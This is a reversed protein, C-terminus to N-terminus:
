ERSLPFGPKIGGFYFNFDLFIKLWFLRLKRLIIRLDHGAGCLLANIKDGTTGQLYNRGLLGDSKMHGIVPEIASRRKMDKRLAYTKLDRKNRTVHIKCSKEDNGRYGLDVYSDSPRTGTLDEIQNLTDSLTHGDYPNGPLAKIGVVFNSKHTTAISVKVGFEYKKRAKGKGICEIESAHLSYLKNKDKRKQNLIRDTKELLDAFHVKLNSQKELQRKIDRYVCGLYRKVLKNQKRARKMQQASTYRSGRFLAKKGLRLYSQRLKIGFKRAQKLLLLRAKHQLKSDTPFTIAKEQVTTDIIVKKLDKEKIVDERIAVEILEKLLKECGAEGLRKRWKILSTPHFPLEHQFYQMGCFYQWYPNEKWMSVVAEDSLGFAHKLYLVGVVLRAPLAPNGCNAPFYEAFDEEFKNWNIRDALLCLEHNLDILFELDGQLLDTQPTHKQPKAQM